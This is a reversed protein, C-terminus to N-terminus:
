AGALFRRVDDLVPAAYKASWPPLDGGESAIADPGFLQEFKWLAVAASPAPTHLARELASAEKDWAADAAAEATSWGAIRDAERDAERFARIADLMQRYEAKHAQNDRAWWSRGEGALFREWAQGLDVTAVVHWRDMGPFAHDLLRPLDSLKPRTAEYAARASQAKATLADASERAQSWAAIPQYAKLNDQASQAQMTHDSMM